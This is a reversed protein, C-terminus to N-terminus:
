GLMLPRVRHSEAGVFHAWNVSRSRAAPPFCGGVRSSDSESHLAHFIRMVGSSISFESRRSLHTCEQVTLHPLLGSYAGDAVLLKAVVVVNNRVVLIRFSHSSRPSIIMRVINLCRVPPAIFFLSRRSDILLSGTLVIPNRQRSACVARSSAVGSQLASEMYGHVHVL